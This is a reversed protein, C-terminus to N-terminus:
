NTEMKGALELFNGQGFLIFLGHWVQTNDFQRPQHVYFLYM